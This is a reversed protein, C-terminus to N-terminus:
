MDSGLLFHNINFFICEAENNIQRCTQLLALVSYKLGHEEVLKMGPKKLKKSKKSEWDRRRGHVIRIRDGPQGVTLVQHYILNRIEPPMRGIPSSELGIPDMTFSQTSNSAEDVASDAVM